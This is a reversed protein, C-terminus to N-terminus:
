IAGIDYKQYEQSKREVISGNTEGPAAGSSGSIIVEEQQAEKQKAELSIPSPGQLAPLELAQADNLIGLLIRMLLLHRPFDKTILVHLGQFTEGGSTRIVKSDSSRALNSLCELATYTFKAHERFSAPTELHVSNIMYEIDQLSNQNKELAAQIDETGAGAM